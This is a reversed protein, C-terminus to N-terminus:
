PEGGEAYLDHERIYELVARPLLGRIASTEGRGLAARIATSSVAPLEVQQDGPGNGARGIILFSVLHALEPYGHWREREKELDAGILLAFRHEPHRARLAKVTVLTYSPGGLEEEITCIRVRRLPEAALRCMAVRHAFPVVPKDFPHRFCPVMWVEDVEQTSLAHLCAMQHAVHPPNFSGGFLAIRM